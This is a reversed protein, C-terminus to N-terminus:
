RRFRKGGDFNIVADTAATITFDRRPSRITAGPIM